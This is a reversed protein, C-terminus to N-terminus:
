PTATIAQDAQVLGAGTANSGWTRTYWDQTPDLDWITMSGPPIALATNELITEVQSQALSPNKQLMVAIVSTVHPTAMSTGGAFFFDGAHPPFGQSWWPLHIYGLTGPFPGRVWSGPAVVDLDQGPKERGSFDTVYVENASTPEPIDNYEYYPSQLWWLRDRPPPAIYDPWYWEYKWGCAGVSIVQPFAGPWDMGEDGANGAAAVVIVGNSIAYNIADETITDPEPGGLSMTIIMPSYGALKLDTAYRIGAAVARNTGFVLHQEEYDENIHSKGIHYDALVKVPIITADPAIGQVFIPPLPMGSAADQPAYYNYGIITSTVHTGHTTGTDGIFTTEYVVGSEVFTQTEEDWQVNEKFGKGLHEAIREPPFYEKWYPTLGTDLVAVYVGQGTYGMQHVLDVNIMDADWTSYPGFIEKPQSFSPAILLALVALASIAIPFISKKL